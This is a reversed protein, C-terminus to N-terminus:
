ILLTIKPVLPLNAMQSPNKLRDIEKRTLREGDTEGMVRFCEALLKLVSIDEPNHRLSQALSQAAEPFKYNRIHWRGIMRYTAAHDTQDNLIRQTTM